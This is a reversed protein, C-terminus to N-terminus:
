HLKNRDTREGKLYKKATDKNVGVGSQALVDIMAQRDKAAIIIISQVLGIPGATEYTLTNAMVTDPRDDKLHSIDEDTLGLLLVGGNGIGVIM